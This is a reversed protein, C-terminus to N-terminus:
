QLSTTASPAPLADGGLAKYLQVTATLQEGAATARADGANLETRLAEHLTTYDILGSEYRHRALLAALRANEDARDLIELRRGSGDLAVLANEVDALAQAVAKGYAILAQEHQANRIELTGRLRGGDLLPTSLGALLSSTAADPRLLSTLADSALGFSGSLKLSPYLAATAVGVSASAAALRREAARLDPRQRVTDAPIGPAPPLPAAPLAAPTELRRAIEARPLGSLVALRNLDAEIGTRLAPIRARATDLTGEAQLLDLSSALGAQQRWDIIQRTEQLSAVSNRAIQQRLQQTRLDLYNRAVEAALTLGADRADAESAGLSAQAAEVARRTGGFLDIEWSADFGLSYSDSAEGAGASESRRASASQNLGPQGASRSTDLSARAERVRARASQLDPSHALASDILADLQPDGFNRWWHAAAATSTAAPAANWVAPLPTQPAHYDPGVSACASLLLLCSASLLIRASM